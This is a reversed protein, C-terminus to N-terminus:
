RTVSTSSTQPPEPPAQIGEPPPLQIAACYKAVAAHDVPQPPAVTQVGSTKSHHEYSAVRHEAFQGLICGMINGVLQEEQKAEKEVQRANAIREQLLDHVNIGIWVMAIAATFMSFAALGTLAMGFVRARAASVELRQAVERVVESDGNEFNHGM